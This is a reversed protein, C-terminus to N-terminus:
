PQFSMFNCLEGFLILCLINLMVPNSKRQGSGVRCEKENITDYAHMYYAKKTQENARKRNNNENEHTDNVLQIGVLLNIISM